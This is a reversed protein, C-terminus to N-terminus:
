VEYSELRRIIIFIAEKEKLEIDVIENFIIFLNSYYLSIM